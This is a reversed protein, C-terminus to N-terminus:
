FMGFMGGGSGQKVELLEVEFKLASMGPIKGQPVPGYALDAPVTLIAKGGPRMLQLGEQWGKIVQGVKFESPEGRAISSDFQTGDFLTGTYHVKVTDDPTPREGSGPTLERFVLGSPQRVAGEEETAAALFTEAGAAAAEML